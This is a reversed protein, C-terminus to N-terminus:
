LFPLSVGALLMLSGIIWIPIILFQDSDKDKSLPRTELLIIGTGALFISFYLDLIIPYAKGFDVTIWSGILGYIVVVSITGAIILSRHNTPQM